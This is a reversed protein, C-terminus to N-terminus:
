DLGLRSRTRNVWWDRFEHTAAIDKQARRWAGIMAGTTPDVQSRRVIIIQAEFHTPDIGFTGWVFEGGTEKIQFVKGSVEGYATTDTQGPWRLGLPEYRGEFENLETRRM